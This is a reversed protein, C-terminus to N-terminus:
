SKIYAKYNIGAEERTTELMIQLSAWNFPFYSDKRLKISIEDEDLSLIHFGFIWFVCEEKM